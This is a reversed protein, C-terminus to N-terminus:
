TLVGAHPDDLVQENPHTRTWKDMPPHALDFDLLADRFVDSAESGKGVNSLNDTVDHFENTQDNLKDHNSGSPEWDVLPNSNEHEREVDAHDLM